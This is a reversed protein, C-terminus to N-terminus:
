RANYRDLADQQVQIAVDIDLAKIQEVFEDFKDMPELGLIFKNTMEDVYTNVDSTINAFQTGEESTMTIPPLVYAGDTNTAWLEQEAVYVDTLGPLAKFDRNYAGQHWKHVDSMLLPEIGNPNDIMLETFVPKGDVIDHAIGEVGYNFLFSGEQTYHYDLWKTAIEPNKCATTIVVENAPKTNTVWNSFHRTDGKEITLYPLPSTVDKVDVVSTNNYVGTQNSSILEERGGTERTLYEKDLLGESVWMNMTEVYLKYSPEIPGYKVTNNEKFFKPGIDWAGMMYGYQDKWGDYWVMPVSANKESKFKKLVNTLEDITTPMELNLEDLWDQRIRMGDWPNEHETQVCYFAVLNGSDTTTEKAIDPYDERIKRYNPAYNDIYSNLEIAIEEEVLKDPGGPYKDLINELLDPFDGTALMLQLSQNADGAPHIWSIDVNTRKELEQYMTNEELTTILESSFPIWYTLTVDEGDPVIPLTLEKSFEKNTGTIQSSSEDDSKNTCSSMISILLLMSALGAFIKRKM